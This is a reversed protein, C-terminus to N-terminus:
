GGRGVRRALCSLVCAPTRRSHGGWCRCSAHPSVFCELGRGGVAGGALGHRADKVAPAHGRNILCRVIQSPVHQRPYRSIPAALNAELNAELNIFRNGNDKNGIFFVRPTKRIGASVDYPCGGVCGSERSPQFGWMISSVVGLTAYRPGGSVGSAGRHPLPCQDPQSPFPCPPGPHM